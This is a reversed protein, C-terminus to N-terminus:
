AHTYAVNEIDAMGRVVNKRPTGDRLFVEAKHVDGEVPISPKRLARRSPVLPRRVALPETAGILENFVFLLLLSLAVVM